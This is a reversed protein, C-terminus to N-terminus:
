KPGPKAFMKLAIIAILLAMSVLNSGIIVLDVQRVGYVVWLAVGVVLILLMKLSVDDMEGSHWAKLLQPLYSATTCLAALLGIATTLM